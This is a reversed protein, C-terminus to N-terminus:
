ERLGILNLYKGFPAEYHDAYYRHLYDALPKGSLTRSVEESEREYIEVRAFRSFYDIMVGPDTQMRAMAYPSFECIAMAAAACVKAGGAIVLPESGQTDIKLVIPTALGEHFNDLTEAKVSVTQWENEGMRAIGDNKRYRHDGHNTPSLEFTVEGPADLLALNLGRFFDGAGNIQANRMLFGYNRPVPEFALVAIGSAAVPVATLGINAGIDIYTGAKDPGFFDLVRQLTKPSWDHQTAYRQIVSVDASSGEFVGQGGRVTLSEVPLASLIEAFARERPVRSLVAPLARHGAGPFVSVLGVITKAVIRDILSMLM